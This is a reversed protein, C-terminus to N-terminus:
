NEGYLLKEIELDLEAFDGPLVIKDDLLGYERENPKNTKTTHNKLLTNQESNSNFNQNSKKSVPDITM